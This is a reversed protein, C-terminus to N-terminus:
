PYKPINLCLWVYEPIIWVYESGQTVRAYESGQYTWFQPINKDMPVNLIGSYEYCQWVDVM